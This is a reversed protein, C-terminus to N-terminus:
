GFQSFTDVVIFVSLRLPWFKPFMKLREALFVNSIRAEPATFKGFPCVLLVLDGEGFHDVIVQVTTVISLFEPRVVRHRGPVVTELVRHMM